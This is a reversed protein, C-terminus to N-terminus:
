VAAAPAKAAQPRARSRAFRAGVAERLADLGQAEGSVKLLTYGALAAAMVDSRLATETDDAREALRRLRMLRPTLQDLSTLDRRAEALDYGPPVVAPNQALLTLTQRCFPESKDGMRTLGRRDDATLSILGAFAAELQALADDIKALDADSFTLSILNQSM